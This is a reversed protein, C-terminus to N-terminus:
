SLDDGKLTKKVSSNFMRKVYLGAMRFSILFVGLAVVIYDGTHLFAFMANTKPVLYIVAFAIASLIYAPILALMTQFFVSVRIVKLSIGMSRMIAIDGASALMAKYSCINLFFAIFLISCVWVFLSFVVMIGQALKEEVDLAIKVDSLVALYGEEKLGAIQKEAESDDAFILSVQTYPDLLQGEYAMEMFVDPSLVLTAYGVSDEVVIDNSFDYSVSADSVYQYKSLDLLCSEQSSSYSVGYDDDYYDDYNTDILLTGNITGKIDRIYPDSRGDGCPWYGFSGSPLTDLVFLHLENQTKNVTDDDGGNAGMQIALKCVIGRGYRECLKLVSAMQFGERTFYMKAPQTNDYFYSVGVVKLPMGQITNTLDTFNITDKGMIPQFGIPLSLMVENWASPLRGIQPSKTAGYDFGFTCGNSYDYEHEKFFVYASSELLYDCRLSEKAGTKEQLERLDEATIRGSNLRSTVLRGEKHVFMSRQQFDERMASCMSTVLSAAITSICMLICLFVSLKPKAGFRVKGLQFGKRLRKGFSDNESAESATVADPAVPSHPALIQDSEVTGDFIRVHRTACAAVQDFNHTVIIVLKEQSIERLLEIIEKSTQSDLNGTPEDALLIPSDKALARAIVTRQKQGGSLHSGKHRIHSELGVRRILEMARKRREKPHDIHMLALEVNQLVTFSEVINYDQFIFSIYRKRYEEWDAQVYHSTPEGDIYLEGEEYTDMGSIVNLLTSKGSGSKGTIAVFEGREFDLNVGRIGVAVSGESVYIKGINKLSLLSM